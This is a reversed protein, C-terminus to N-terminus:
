LAPDNFVVFDVECLAGTDTESFIKIGLVVVVECILLELARRLHLTVRYAAALIVAPELFVDAAVDDAAVVDVVTLLAADDATHTCYEGDDFVVVDMVDVVHHFQATSFNCADLEVCGDVDYHSAIVDVM